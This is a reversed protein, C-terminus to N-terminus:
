SCVYAFALWSSIGHRLTAAFTLYCCPLYKGHRLMVNRLSMAFRVISFCLMAYCLLLMVYPMVHRWFSVDYFFIFYCPTLLPVYCCIVYVCWSSYLPTLYTMVSHRSHSAPLTLLFFEVMFQTLELFPIIPVHVLSFVTGIDRRSDHCHISIYLLHLIYLIYSSSSSINSTYSIYSTYSALHHHHHYTLHILSTLHILHLIIHHYTLHILSTLHM